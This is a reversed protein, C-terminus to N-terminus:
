KGGKYVIPDRGKPPADWDLRNIANYLAFLRRGDEDVLKSEFMCPSGCFFFTPRTIQIYADDTIVRVDNRKRSMGLPKAYVNKQSADTQESPYHEYDRIGIFEGKNTKFKLGQGQHTFIPLAIIHNEWRAVVVHKRVKTYIKGYPTTTVRTTDEVGRRSTDKFLPEHTAFSIIHGIKFDQRKHVDGHISVKIPPLASVAPVAPVAPVAAPVAAPAPVRWRTSDDFNASQWVKILDIPYPSTSKGLVSPLQSRSAQAFFKHNWPSSM